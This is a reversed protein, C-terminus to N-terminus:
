PTKKVPLGSYHAHVLRWKGEIKWYVQTERGHTVVPSGDKRLKAHFDWDFEAWASDDHVHISIDHVTLLRQSFADGMLQEYVQEKIEDFGHEHAVPNIFSVQPSNWWVQSALKTDATDISRAYKAILAQIEATDGNTSSAHAAKGSAAEHPQRTQARAASLQFCIAALLWASWPLFRSRSLSPM